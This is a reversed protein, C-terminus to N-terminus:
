KTPEPARVMGEQAMTAVLKGDQFFKALSLGRGGQASPSHLEALIWDSPDVDRHWWTTHDLTALSIKPTSWSLHHSLLIPELMFQDAGYALIARKQTQTAAKPLPTRMKFWVYNTSRIEKAPRLYVQGNVHRMDLSNTSSMFRAAPHDVSSFLDVSSQFNEPGPVDPMEDAHEVGDQKVQFSDRASFIIEGDQMAHVLRTSFSRGDNIIDVKFDIEKKVDGPRLFAATQSHVLRDESNEFTDAAAIVAQALVQGGYVRGSLQALNSHGRYLNDGLRELRLTHLLSALPETSSTPIDIANDM